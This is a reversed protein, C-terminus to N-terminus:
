LTLWKSSGKNNNQESADGGGGHGRRRLVFVVVAIVILILLVAGGVIGGYLIAKKWVFCINVKLNQFFKENRFEGSNDDKKVGETTSTDLVLLVLLFFGVNSLFRKVSLLIVFRNFDLKNDVCNDVNHQQRNNIDSCKNSVNHQQCNNADFCNNNVNHCQCNNTDFCSDNDDNNIIIDDGVDDSDDDDYEDDGVDDRDDHAHNGVDQWCM